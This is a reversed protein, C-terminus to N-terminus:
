LFSSVFTKTGSQVKDILNKDSAIVWGVVVVILMVLVFKWEVGAWAMGVGALITIGIVIPALYKKVFEFFGSSVAAGIDGSGTDAFLYSIGLVCMFVLFKFVFGKKVFEKNM